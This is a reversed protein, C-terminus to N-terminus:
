RMPRVFSRRWRSTLTWAAIGRSGSSRRSSRCGRTCRRDSRARSRRERAHAEEYGPKPMLVNMEVSTTTQLYQKVPTVHDGIIRIGIYPGSFPYDRPFEFVLTYQNRVHFSWMEPVRDSPADCWPERMFAVCSIPDAVLEAAENDLRKTSALSRSDNNAAM